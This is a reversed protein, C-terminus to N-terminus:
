IYSDLFEKEKPILESRRLVTDERDERQLINM